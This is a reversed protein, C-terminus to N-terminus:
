QVTLYNAAEELTQVLNELTYVQPKQLKDRDFGGKNSSVRAQNQPANNSILQM